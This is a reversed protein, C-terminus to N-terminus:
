LSEVDADVSTIRVKAGAVVLEQYRSADRNALAGQLARALERKRQEPIEDPAGPHVGSIQYVMVRTQQPLLGAIPLAEAGGAAFVENLLERPIEQDYRGVQRRIQVEFGSDVALSELEAGASLEARLAEGRELALKAAREAKLTAEIEASVEDLPRLTAPRREQLQLVLARDDDFELVPSIRGDLVEDQFAADVVRREAGIGPGGARTLPESIQLPLDMARAVDALSGSSYALEILQELQEGYIAEVQQAALEARLAAREEAFTGLAPGEDRVRKFIHWGEESKVPATVEGIALPEIAERLTPPFEGPVYPGIEGGFEASLPDESEAIALEAFEAGAALAEQIRALKRQAGDDATDRVLIQALIPRTAAEVEAVRERYRQQLLDEEIELSEAVGSRSFELYHLVVQEVTTYREPHAAYHAEVDAASVAIGELMTDVPIELWALDRTEELGVLVADLEQPLVFAGQMLGRALQSVVVERGLYRSHTQPTYGMQRLYVQYADRSFSGDIQFLPADGLVQAILQPAVGMGQQRARVELARTAILNDLAPGRLLADDILAPDVDGLRQLLYSRQREVSQDLELRTIREGDVRAVEEVSSGSFFLTEVGFFAFPIAILVVLWKGHKQLSARFDQMM